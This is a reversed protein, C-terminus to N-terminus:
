SLSVGTRPDLLEPDPLQLLSALCGEFVAVVFAKKLAQLLVERPAAELVEVSVEFDQPHPEDPLEHVFYEPVVQAQKDQPLAQVQNRVEFVGHVLEEGEQGLVVLFQELLVGRLIELQACAVQFLLSPGPGVAADFDDLSADLLAQAAFIDQLEHEPVQEDRVVSQRECKDLRHELM